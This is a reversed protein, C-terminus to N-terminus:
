NFLAFLLDNFKIEFTMNVDSPTVVAVEFTHLSYPKRVENANKLHFFVVQM